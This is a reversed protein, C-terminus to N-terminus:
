RFASHYFYYEKKVLGSADSKMFTKQFLVYFSKEVSRDPMKSSVKITSTYLLCPTIVYGPAKEADATVTLINDTTTINESKFLVKNNNDVDIYKVVYTFNVSGIKHYYFTIVNKDAEASLNISLIRNEVFYDKVNVATAVVQRKYVDLHTYSVAEREKRGGQRRM